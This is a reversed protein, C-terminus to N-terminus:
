RDVLIPLLADAVESPREEHSFLGAGQIETLSADAFTSVDRRAHEVPFFPDEVGWVLRVPVDIRAHVSVLERVYRYDFSELLRIATVQRARSAHLPALFFEDFEGDLHSPDAFAGGLVFGFRRLRRRAVVWGLVRDFGPVGRNALFARFRWSVGTAPETNILGMSRLRPDGAMAHRAILGGSDHGVVSVSDVGLHDITARLADIHGGISVKTDVDFRSSGTSVYDILHCTVHNALHPLLTRFTAGSVPWGHSFVVDPGRGVRRYAVAGDAVEIYADPERRFLDAAQLDTLPM